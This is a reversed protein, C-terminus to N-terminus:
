ASITTTPSLVTGSGAFPDTPFRPQTEPAPRSHESLALQAALTQKFQKAEAITVVEIQLGLKTLEAQVEAIDIRFFEKRDNSWNLRRDRFHTHLQNELEPANESYIMAHIDFPFPVSADGLEQVREEPDLRRTLGIKIVGEGFAGVNSIIYVHGVKTLQAQALARDKRDRAAALDAELAQIRTQMVQRESEAAAKLQAQAQTLAKQYATEDALADDHERQLERQAKEEERQDARQHRQEEREQQKKEAAGFVLKLEELRSLRYEDTLTVQLVTGLKNLAEFTKNIRTEMVSYNNWSVNAVAAESEANFARLVVKQSQKVMREGDRKSGGVSWSAGCKVAHDSKILAKQRDRVNAIATKYSETDEFTFHPQYLGVEINSLSEELSGVEKSLEEYRALGVEYRHAFDATEAQVKNLERKASEENASSEKRLADVQIQADLLLHEREKQADSRVREGEKQADLIPAYRRELVRSRNYFRLTLFGLTIAAIAAVAALVSTLEM